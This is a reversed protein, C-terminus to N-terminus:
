GLVNDVSMGAAQLPKNVLYEGRRRRIITLHLYTIDEFKIIEFAKFLPNSHDNYNSFTIIGLFLKHLTYNSNFNIELHEGM